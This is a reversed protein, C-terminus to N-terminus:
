CVLAYFGQPPPLQQAVERNVQIRKQRGVDPPLVKPSPQKMVVPKTPRVIEEQQKLSFDEQPYDDQTLKAM